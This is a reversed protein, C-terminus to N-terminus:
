RSIYSRYETCAEELASKIKSLGQGECYLALGQLVHGLDFNREELTEFLSNFFADLAVAECYDLLEPISTDKPLTPSIPSTM